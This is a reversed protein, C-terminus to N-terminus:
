HSQVRLYLQLSPRTSCVENKAWPRIQSTAPGFDCGVAGLGDCSVQEISHGLPLCRAQAHRGHLLVSGGNSGGGGQRIRDRQVM